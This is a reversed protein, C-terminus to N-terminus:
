RRPTRRSPIARRRPRCSRARRARVRARRRHPARRHRPRPRLHRRQKARVRRRQDVAVRRRTPPCPRRRPQRTTGAPARRRVRHEVVQQRGLEAELAVVRSAAGLPQTASSRAAGVPAARARRPALWETSCQASATSAVTPRRHLASGDEMQLLDRADGARLRVQERQQRAQALAAPVHAHQHQVLVLRAGPVECRRQARAAHREVRDREAGVDVRDREERSTAYRTRM